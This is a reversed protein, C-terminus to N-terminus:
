PCPFATIDQVPIMPHIDPNTYVRQAGTKLDTITITVGVNTGASAFVWFHDNIDCKPLIKILLEPNHGSFFWVVGGQTVGLSALPIAHGPGAQGGGQTTQFTVQIQFRGDGPQDDICLTTTSPACASTLWGVDQFLALELGPDHLPGTYFPEVPQDPSLVTDWHSVSSVPEQMGPAYMRVHDGVRGATLLGSAARVSPGIWHLDGTAKSAAVRQANSMSPYDSPIAGHRELNLMYTDNSGALKEGTALDVYTRFALGHALEHIVVSVLDVKNAPFKRGIRLVLRIFGLM